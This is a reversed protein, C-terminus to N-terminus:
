VNAIEPKVLEEVEKRADKTDVKMTKIEINFYLTRLKPQVSQNETLINDLQTLIMEPFDVFLRKLNEVHAQTYTLNDNVDDEVLFEIYFQHYLLDLKINYLSTFTVLLNIDNKEDLENINPLTAVIFKMASVQKEKKILKLEESLLDKSSLEEPSNS